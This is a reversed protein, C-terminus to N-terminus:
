RKRRRARREKVIRLMTARRHANVPEDAEKLLQKETWHKYWWRLWHYPCLLRPTDYWATERCRRISCKLGDM